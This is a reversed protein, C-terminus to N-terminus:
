NKIVVKGNHIYIGKTAPKSSLRRGDLSYWADDSFTIEGTRTDLTGIATPAGSASVLRVSMTAPLEDTGRTVGRASSPATYKLYARFPAITAGTM